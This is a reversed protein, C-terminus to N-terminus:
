CVERLQIDDIDCKVITDCDDLQVLCTVADLLVIIEGSKDFSVMLRNTIVVKDGVEM